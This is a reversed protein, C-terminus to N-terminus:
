KKIEHANVNACTQIYIFLEISQLILGINLIFYRHPDIFIQLTGTYKWFNQIALDQM